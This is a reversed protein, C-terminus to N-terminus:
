CTLLVMLAQLAHSISTSILAPVLNRASFYLVSAASTSELAWSVPTTRLRQAGVETEASIEPLAESMWPGHFKHAQSCQSGLLPGWHM